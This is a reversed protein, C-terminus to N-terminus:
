ARKEWKGQGDQQWYTLTHGGVKLATWRERAAAVAAEDNGDFLDFCREFEAMRLSGAGDTLFLYTAANPNDDKDSLWIPQDAATGDKVTGHPLWSDSRYTWLLGALAEVREASGVLVLARRNAALTRELLRPLVADLPARQLHYFAVETM